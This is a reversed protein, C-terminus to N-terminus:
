EDKHAPDEPQLSRGKGRRRRMRRVIWRVPLFVAFFLILVVPLVFILIWIGANVLFKLTNILAQVADKAVGVPEWGGITLPQVAEDAVLETSVLSMRASQEFYNIRGKIVEIEEQVRVLENYVSLVDETNSAEDMIAILKEEAAELNRLRSQLDVYDQTVDESSISERLPERDSQGKIVEITENLREAPVRIVITGEPVSVGDSTTRQYLNASVVFGNMSDALRAIEDMTSSPDDVVIAMEANQIVLREHSETEEYQALATEGGFKREQAELAAEEFDVGPEPAYGSDALLEPSSAGCAALFLSVVFIGSGLVYFWKVSKRKM